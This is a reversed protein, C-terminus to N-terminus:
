IPPDDTRIRCSDGFKKEQWRKYMSESMKKRTEESIVRGKLKKSRKVNSEESNKDKKNLRRKLWGKKTSEKSNGKYSYDKFARNPNNKCYIGHYQSYIQNSIIKSCYECQMKKIDKKIYNPSLKCNNGHWRNYNAQSIEKNCYECNLKKHPKMKIGTMRKRRDEKEEETHLRIPRNKIKKLILDKNPNNTFNDGGKGGININYGHPYLTKYQNILDIEKKCLEDSSDCYELIEKKFNYFGYKKIALKLIKGSGFYSDNINFTEHKGIYCKRNIQNEIKYIFYFKKM